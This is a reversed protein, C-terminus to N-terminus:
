RRALGRLLFALGLVILAVPWALRAVDAYRTGALSITGVTVLIGGPILPWPHNERLRFLSAVVWIAIFGIGLSVLLLGSGVRGEEYFRLVLGVGVGMVIGAPVLFGYNRTALFAVLFTLGIALVVYHSANSIFQGALFVIGVVILILGGVWAGDNRRERRLHGPPGPAAGPGPPPASPDRDVGPRDNANSDTM